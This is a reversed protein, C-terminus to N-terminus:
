KQAKLLMREMGGKIREGANKTHDPGASKKKLWLVTIVDDKLDLSVSGPVLTISNVLVIRLFLSSLGTKIEVIEVHADTLILKIASLGAVYVQWILFFPYVALRLVHLEPTRPLPLFKHCFFICLASIVIGAAVTLISFSERLISWVFTLLLVAYLANRNM